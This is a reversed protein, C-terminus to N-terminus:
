ETRLLRRQVFILYILVGALIILFMVGAIAAGIAPNGAQLQFGFFTRYFFTGMIDTSFSPGALGGQVTYILDFANFNGVFTLITVIGVTPLILPFKIRWFVGWATAGDVRAAEILEEPINILAASFLLMPIGIFQWVSVLSLTTLATEPVGLWPRILSELGVARFLDDMIGWLPSLMINGWIFGVLVFSLMTPLFIATRFFAKYRTIKSTLLAALLLGIPNQVLMHVIFFQFNNKVAGELRPAYNPDTLLRQYNSLGVFEDVRPNEASPAYLSRGLSGILPYVMFLTYIIVAPALFVVIHFPFRKRSRPPTTPTM